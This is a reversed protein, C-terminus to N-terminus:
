TPVQGDNLVEMGPVELWQVFSINMEHLCMLWTIGLSVSISESYAFGDVNIVIVNIM